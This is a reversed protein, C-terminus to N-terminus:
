SLTMRERPSAVRNMPALRLGTPHQHDRWPPSDVTLVRSVRNIIRAQSQTGQHAFKRNQGGFPAAPPRASFGLGVPAAVVLEDLAKDGGGRVTHMPAIAM